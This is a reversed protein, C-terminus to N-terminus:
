RLDATVGQQRRLISLSARHRTSSFTAKNVTESAADPKTDFSSLWVALSFETQIGRRAVAEATLLLGTLVHLFSRSSTTCGVVGSFFPEFRLRLYTQCVM